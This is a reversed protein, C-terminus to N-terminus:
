SIRLPATTQEGSTGAMDGVVTVGLELDTQYFRANTPNEMAETLRQKLGQLMAEKHHNNKAVLLVQMKMCIAAFGTTGNGSALDM